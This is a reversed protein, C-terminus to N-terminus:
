DRHENENQKFYQVYMTFLINFSIFEVVSARARLKTGVFFGKWGHQEYIQRAINSLSLPTHTGRVEVQRRVSCNDFPMTLISAIIASPVASAISVVVGKYPQQLSIKANLATAIQPNLGFFVGGFGCNRLAMPLSGQIFARHGGNRWLQKISDLTCEPHQKMRLITVQLANALPGSMAGAISSATIEKAATPPKDRSTWLSLILGKTEFVLPFLPQFAMEARIGTWSRFVKGISEFPIEKLTKVSMAMVQQELKKPYFPYWCFLALFSSSQVGIMDQNRVLTNKLSDRFTDFNM